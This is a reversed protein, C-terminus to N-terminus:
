SPLLTWRIGSSGTAASWCTSRVASNIVGSCFCAIPRAAILAKVSPLTPRLEASIERGVNGETFANIAARGIAQKQEPTIFLATRLVHQDAAVPDLPILHVRSGDYVAATTNTTGFDLGIRM